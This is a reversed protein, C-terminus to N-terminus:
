VLLCINGAAPYFIRNFGMVQQPKTRREIAGELSHHEVRCIFVAGHDSALSPTFVLHTTCNYKHDQQKEYVLGPIWYRGNTVVHVIKQSGKEHKHWTVSVNDQYFMLIKCQLVMLRNRQLHTPAKISEVDLCCVKLPTLEENNEQKKPGMVQLPESRKEIPEELSPHEVRCIFVAGDDSMSKPILILRATCSYTNDWQKKYQIGPIWQRVGPVIVVADQSGQELKSWTVSVNDPHFKSIKCQLIVMKNCELHPPVKIDEVELRSEDLPVLEEISDLNGPRKKRKKLYRFSACIGFLALAITLGFTIPKSLHFRGKYELRFDEQLSESLSEHQVRCSFTRNRDEEIPIITVTSTVSYTGDSERKHTNESVQDLHKGDKFWKFDIDELYLGTILLCSLANEKYTDVKRGIIRIELASFKLQFVEHLPESLAEHQVRCSFSRNRDEKTPKITVTSTVSYTGDQNRQPRSVTYNNLTEKDEFWKVEINEPYFGTIDARLVNIHNIFAIRRTITIEPPASHISINHLYIENCLLDSRQ